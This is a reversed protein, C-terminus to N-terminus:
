PISHKGGSSSACTRIRGPASKSRRSVAASRVLWVLAVAAEAYASRLKETFWVPEYMDPIPGIAGVDVYRYLLVTAVGAVGTLGAAAWVLRRDSLLVAIAVAIAVVAEIRFLWGQTVTSGVADYNAALHLHVKADYILGVAALVRLVRLVLAPRSRKALNV